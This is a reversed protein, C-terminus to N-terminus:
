GLLVKRRMERLRSKQEWGLQMSNILMATRKARLWECLKVRFMEPSDAAQAYHLLDDLEDAELLELLEVAEDTTLLPVM